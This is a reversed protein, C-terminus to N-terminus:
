LLIYQTNCVNNNNNNNHVLVRYYQTRRYSCCCCLAHGHIPFVRDRHANLHYAMSNDDDASLGICIYELPAFEGGKEFKTGGMGM